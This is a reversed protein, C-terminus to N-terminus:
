LIKTKSRYSCEECAFWSRGCVLFHVLNAKFCEPCTKAAPVILDEPEDPIIEYIQQHKEYRRLEKQLSRITAKQEQVIQKLRQSESLEKKRHTRKPM